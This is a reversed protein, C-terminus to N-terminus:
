TKTQKLGQMNKKIENAVKNRLEKDEKQFALKAKRTKAEFYQHRNSLLKNELKKIEDNKSFDFGEPKSLGILTNAAVFKTELNPLPRIGRNDAGPKEKQDVVLSIFFRLKAIQVAIPQIDVGYICNEILYLKRGYDSANNEFTESIEKLKEDRVEREGINYAQETDRLANQKQLEQWRKNDKDLKSLILVLKHLIGMPFAGSGCAPDLIKCNDIAKIIAQVENEQFSPIESEYSVLRRLEEELKDEKGAWRNHGIETEMKLQGKRDKNGFLETQSKGMQMFAVPTEELLKTKLYAIISEDVMYNVIERPTYFSGTQKRATTGTEPNYFALLNEFVKGLLEPDLAIEEEIPTNEEITFKYSKFIEILGECKERQKKYGYGDSLDYFREKGFFLVDPVLASKKSNRSFGDIYEVKGTEENTKDLCDFLGGNLFPIDKFLNIVENESINFLKAYRYITKVGFHEKNVLTSGGDKAFERENMKQNLTGFFLNQLIANYYNTTEESEPDFQKIIKKIFDPTFLKEDILHKEKLFWVFILRTILRILNTQINRNEEIKKDNPFKVLAQAWIYWNALENFFKKNLESVDLVKLWQQHLLTYNTVNNLKVLDLLIREHGAHPKITNIDKLIIIKGQKEGTRWQHLYKFRESIAISIMSGNEGPYKLLLAVPMKESKRNIARTLDSIETRTPKKSLQMAFLLLGEYRTDAIALAQELEYGQTFMDLQSSFISDEIMGIFYINEIENYYPKGKLNPVLIEKSFSSTTNSNLKIGLQGFLDTAAEFLRATNFISLNM